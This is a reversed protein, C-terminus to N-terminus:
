KYHKNWTGNCLWKARWWGRRLAKARTEVHNPMGNFHRIIGNLDEISFCWPFAPYYKQSNETRFATVKSGFYEKTASELVNHDSTALYTPVVVKAM